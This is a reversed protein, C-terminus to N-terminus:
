GNTLPIEYEKAIGEVFARARQDGTAWIRQLLYSAEDVAGRNLLVAALLSRSRNELLAAGRRLVAEAEDEGHPSALLLAGLLALASSDGAALLRCQTVMDALEGPEGFNRLFSGFGLLSQVDGADIGQRYLERAEVKDGLQARLMALSSLSSLDGAAVAARYVSEAAAPDERIGPWNVVVTVAGHDGAEAAKRYLALAHGAQGAAREEDGKALLFAIARRRSMARFAATAYGTASAEKVTM